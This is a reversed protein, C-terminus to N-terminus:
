ERDRGGSTRRLGAAELSVDGEGDADPKVVVSALSLHVALRAHGKVRPKVLRPGWNGVMLVRTPEACASSNPTNASTNRFSSQPELLVVEHIVFKSRDDRLLHLAAVLAGDDRRSAHQRALPRDQDPVTM